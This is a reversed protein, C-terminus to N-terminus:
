NNDKDLEELQILYDMARIAFSNLSEGANAAAQKYYERKGKPLRIKIDEYKAALYKKAAKAQSETYRKKKETAM